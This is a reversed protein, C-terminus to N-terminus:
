SARMCLFEEPPLLVADKAPAALGVKPEVKEEEDREDGEDAYEDEGVNGVAVDEEVLAESVERTGNNPASVNM